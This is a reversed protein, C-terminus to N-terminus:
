TRKKRKPLKHSEQDVLNFQYLRELSTEAKQIESGLIDTSNGIYLDSYSNNDDDFTYM